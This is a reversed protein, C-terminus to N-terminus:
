FPRLHSWFPLSAFFLQKVARTGMHLAWATCVCHACSALCYWATGRQASVTPHADRDHQPQSASRTLSPSQLGWFSNVFKKTKKAGYLTLQKDATTSVFPMLSKFAMQSPMADLQMLASFCRVVRLAQICCFEQVRLARKGETTEKLINFIMM